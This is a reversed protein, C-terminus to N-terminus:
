RRRGGSSSPILLLGGLALAGLAIPLLTSKPISGLRSQLATVWDVDILAADRADAIAVLDAIDHAMLLADLQTDADGMGRRQM